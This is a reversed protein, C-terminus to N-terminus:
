ACRLATDTDEAFRLIVQWNDLGACEVESEVINLVRTVETRDDARGVPETYAVDDARQVGGVAEARFDYLGGHTCDCAYAYM